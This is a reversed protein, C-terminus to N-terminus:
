EQGRARLKQKFSQRPEKELQEIRQKLKEIEADHDKFRDKLVQGLEEMSKRIEYTYSSM